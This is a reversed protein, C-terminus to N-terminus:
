LYYRSELAKIAEKYTYRGIYNTEKDKILVSGKFDIDKYISVMGNEIVKIQGKLLLKLDNPLIQNENWRINNVFIDDGKVVWDFGYVNHNYNDTLFMAIHEEIDQHDKVMDNTKDWWEKLPLMGGEMKVYQPLSLEEKITERLNIGRIINHLRIEVGKLHKMDRKVYLDHIERLTDEFDQALDQIEVCLKRCKRQALKQKM